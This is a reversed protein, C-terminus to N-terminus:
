TRMQTTEDIPRVPFFANSDSLKTMPDYLQLVGSGFSFTPTRIQHFPKSRQRNIPIKRGLPKLRQLPCQFAASGTCSKHSLEAVM